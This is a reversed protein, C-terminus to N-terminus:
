SRYRVLIIIHVLPGKRWSEIEYTIGNFIAELGPLPDPTLAGPLLGIEVKEVQSGEYQYSTTDLNRVTGRLTQLDGGAIQIPIDQVSEGDQAYVWSMDEQM